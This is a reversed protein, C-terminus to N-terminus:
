SLEQRLREVRGRLEDDGEVKRCAHLVTSHDKGFAAGVRPLSLGCVARLLYMAVQRPVLVRRLRSVGLLERESVGFAAAVNRIIGAVDPGPSTPQGAGALIEEAAARDLPGPHSPAVAALNGLWGLLPRVGGGTPRAALWDLADPALRVGRAKAADALIARRSAAGLPGLPVVLGAALRSTLRAPLHRLAAPGANATAVVARRRAARRDLLDAVAGAERPPLLQVDELVLLDCAALDRDAFGDTTAAVRALDGVPVVQATLVGPGATLEAALTGVLASKGVGPPGHVVVPVVRPRRGAALAKAVSRVARVAARNEPVVLFSGWRATNM